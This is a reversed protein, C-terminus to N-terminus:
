VEHDIIADAVDASSDVASLGGKRRRGVFLLIGGVTLLVGSAGGYIDLGPEFVPTWKAPLPDGFDDTGTQQVLKETLTALHRPESGVYWYGLVLVAGAFCILAAQKM